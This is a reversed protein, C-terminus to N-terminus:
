SCFWLLLGYELYKNSYFIVGLMLKVICEVIGLDVFFINEVWKGDNLGVIM